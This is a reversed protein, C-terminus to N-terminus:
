CPFSVCVVGRAHESPSSTLLTISTAGLAVGHLVVQPHGPASYAGRQEGFYCALAAVSDVALHGFRRVLVWINTDACCVFMHAACLVSGPARAPACSGPWTEGVWGAVITARNHRWKGLGTQQHPHQHDCCTPTTIALVALWLGEEAHQPWVANSMAAKAMHTLLRWLGSALHAM